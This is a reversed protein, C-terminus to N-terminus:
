TPLLYLHSRFLSRFPPYRSRNKSDNNSLKGDFLWDFISAFFLTSFVHFIITFPEWFPASISGLVCWFDIWSFTDFFILSIMLFWTERLLSIMSIWPSFLPKQHNLFNCTRITFTGFFCWFHYWFGDSIWHFISVFFMSSFLSGFYSFEDFLSGVISGVDMLLWELFRHSFLSL